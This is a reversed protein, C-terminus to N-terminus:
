ARIGLLFRLTGSVDGTDGPTVRIQLHDGAAVIPGYADAGTDLGFQHKFNAGLVDTENYIVRGDGTDAGTDGYPKLAIRVDGGTDFNEGIWQVEKVEGWFAPGTIDQTGTDTDVYLRQSRYMVM